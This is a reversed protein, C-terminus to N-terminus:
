VTSTRFTSSHLFSSFSTPNNKYEIFYKHLIYPTAVAFVVWGGLWVWGVLWGALWGVLQKGLNGSCPKRLIGACDFSLRQGVM